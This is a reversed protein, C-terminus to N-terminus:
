IGVLEPVFSALSGNYANYYKAAAAAVGLYPHFLVPVSALYVANILLVLWCEPARLTKVIGTRWAVYALVLIWPLLFYPKLAIAVGVLAAIALQSVVPRALGRLRSAALLVFPFFCYALIHDRQGFDHRNVIGFDFAVYLLIAYVWARSCAQMALLTRGCYCLIGLLLAWLGPFLVLHPALHLARAVQVVLWHIVYILPPNMDGVDRYLRAGEAMRQGAYLYFAVDGNIPNRLLWFMSSAAVLLIAAVWIWTNRALRAIASYLRLVAGSKRAHAATQNMHEM